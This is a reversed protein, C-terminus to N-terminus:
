TGGDRAARDRDHTDCRPAAAPANPRDIPRSPSFWAICRVRSLIPGSPFDLTALRRDGANPTFTVRIILIGIWMLRVLRRRNTETVAAPAAPTAAAACAAFPSAALGPRHVSAARSTGSVASASTITQPAPGAPTVAAMVAARAPALTRRKSACPASPPTHVFESSPYRRSKSLGPNLWSSTRRSRSRSAMLPSPM